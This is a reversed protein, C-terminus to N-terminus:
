CSSHLVCKLFGGVRWVTGILYSHFCAPGRTPCIRRCLRVRTNWNFTVTTFLENSLLCAHTWTLGAPQVSRRFLSHARTTFISCKMGLTDPSRASACGGRNFVLILKVIDEDLLVYASPAPASCNENWCARCYLSARVHYGRGSQNSQSFFNGAWGGGMISLAAPSTMQFECKTNRNRLVLYLRTRENCYVSQSPVFPFLIRDHFIACYM